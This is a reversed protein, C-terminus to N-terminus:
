RGGLREMEKAFAAGVHAGFLILLSTIYAWTMLALLAGLSGYM